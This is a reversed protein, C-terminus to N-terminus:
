DGKTVVPAPIPATPRSAKKLFLLAWATDCLDSPAIDDKPGMSGTSWKGEPKQQAVIVKAGEAYWDHTGIHERGAFACARELGYLYYYHWGAGGPPNRDVAWNKDLWAFGDQVSKASSRDHEDDYSGYRKPKSLVDRCIAIVAIAATTMSGTVGGADPQYKWGRAKDNGVVYDSEGPKGSGKVIRQVKPGDQEQQKLTQDLAKMFCDLPVQAGCEHAARLGLLAYQTNSLDGPPFTPYRWWGDDLQVGALWSAAEQVWEAAEKPLGCPDKPRAKAYRDKDKEPKAEPRYMETLFMLLTGTDYTRRSSSTANKQDIKRVAELTKLMGPDKKSEGTALLALGCLCTVGIGYGEHDKVILSEFLGDADRQALLWKAGKEIAQNIKKQLEADPAAAVPRPASPVVVLVALLVLSWTRRAASFSSPM